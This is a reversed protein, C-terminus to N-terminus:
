KVGIVCCSVQPTASQGKNWRRAGYCALCTLMLGLLTLSSPEPTASVPPSAPQFALGVPTSFGSDVFTTVGGSPSVKSISGGHVGNSNAVFLDGSADFALDYPYDFGSAFTSVAGSPTV